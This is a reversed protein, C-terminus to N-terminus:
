YIYKGGIIYRFYGDVNLRELDFSDGFPVKGMSKLANVAARDLDPYGSSSVVRINTVTGDKEISFQIRVTGEENNIISKTPYTWVQYLNRRFKYFYSAYKNKMANFNVNDEGEEQKKERYAYERIIDDPNFINELQNKSLKTGGEPIRRKKADEELTKKKAETEGINEATDREPETKPEDPQTPEPEPPQAPEPEPPQTPEPKPPTATKPKPVPQLKPQPKPEVMRSTAKDEGKETKKQRSIDRDSLIEPKEEPVSEPIDKPPEIIEVTMPKDKLIAGPEWKLLHLILMHILLSVIIAIYLKYNKM